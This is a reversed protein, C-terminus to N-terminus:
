VVKLGRKIAARAARWEEPTMDTARKPTGPRPSPPPLPQSTTVPAPPAGSQSRFLWGKAKKAEEMLTEVGDVEGKDNLTVTSTDLLKLGEPDLMGAKKAADALAEAIMRERAKNEIESIRAQAIREAAAISEAATAELQKARDEAEQARRLNAAAENQAAKLTDRLGTVYEPAFGAVNQPGPPAPPQQIPSPDDSAM